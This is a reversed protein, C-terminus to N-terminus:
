TGAARCTVLNQRYDRSHHSTDRVFQCCRRAIEGPDATDGALQQAKTGARPQQWDMYDSAAPYIALDM